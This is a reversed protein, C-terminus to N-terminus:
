KKMIAEPPFNGDREAPITEGELSVGHEYDQKEERRTPRNPRVSRSSSLADPFYRGEFQSQQEEAPCGSCVAGCVRSGM